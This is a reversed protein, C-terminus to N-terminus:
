HPAGAAARQGEGKLDQELSKLNGISFRYAASMQGLLRYMDRATAKDIEMDSLTDMSQSLNILANSTGTLAVQMDRMVAYLKAYRQLKEADMYNLAQNAVAVDWAERQLSPSRISLGFENGAEAMMHKLADHDSTGAKIDASVVTKLRALKDVQATNHEIVKHTEVINASIEANLSHVAEEAVHWRHYRQAAHELALATLISVVIM